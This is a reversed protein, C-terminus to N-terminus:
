IIWYGIWDWDDIVWYDIVWDDIVWCDDSSKLYYSDNTGPCPM